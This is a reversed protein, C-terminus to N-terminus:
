AAGRVRRETVRYIMAAAGALARHCRAADAADALV